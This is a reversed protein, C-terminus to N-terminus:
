DPPWDYGQEAWWAAFSAWVADVVPRDAETWPRWATDAYARVAPLAFFVRRGDAYFRGFVPGERTEILWTDLDEPDTSRQIAGTPASPASVPLGGRDPARM